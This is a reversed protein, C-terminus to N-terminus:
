QCLTQKINHFKVNMDGESSYHRVSLINYVEGKKLSVENPCNDAVYFETQSHGSDTDKFNVYRFDYFSKFQVLQYNESVFERTLSEGCGTMLITTSLLLLIFTKKM